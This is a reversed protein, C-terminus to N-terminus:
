RNPAIFGSELSRRSSIFQRKALCFVCIWLEVVLEGASGDLELELRHVLVDGLV